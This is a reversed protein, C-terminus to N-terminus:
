PKWKTWLRQLTDRFVSDELLSINMKWQRIKRPVTQYPYTLRVVVAFHDSFPAVITEAGQKCKRLPDTLYIRDIRTADNNTYHTYPPQPHRTDYVDHLALGTIISSLAKSLNPTGTCDSPSTVCNFDGALLLDSSSAPLLHALDHTFFAEREQRKEAGSPAYINMIWTDKFLGAIGRGSPLRKVNQLCLGEKLLIATGRRDIGENVFATYGRFPPLDNNTIEQLLAMDIDQRLLLNNLLQMKLPSTVASPPLDDNTIEQFLEM